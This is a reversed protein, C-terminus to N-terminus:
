LVASGMGVLGGDYPLDCPHRLWLNLEADYLEASKLGRGGAVIPCGDVTGCAFYARSDHMPPLPEWHADGDVVLAECSSLPTATNRVGGLVAFRGDSM